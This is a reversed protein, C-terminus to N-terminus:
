RRRGMRAFCGSSIYFANIVMEKGLLHPLFLSPLLAMAAELCLSTNASRHFSLNHFPRSYDKQCMWALCRQTIKAWKCTSPSVWLASHNTHNPYHSSNTFFSSHQTTYILSLEFLFRPILGSNVLYVVFNMTPLSHKLLTGARPLEKKHYRTHDMETAFCGRWLVLPSFPYLLEPKEATWRRWSGPLKM